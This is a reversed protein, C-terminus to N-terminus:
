KDLYIARIDSNNISCGHEKCYAEEGTFVEVNVEGCVYDFMNSDHEDMVHCAVYYTHNYLYCALKSDDFSNYIISMKADCAPDRLAIQFVYAFDYADADSSSESVSSNWNDDYDDEDIMYNDEGFRDDAMAFIDDVTLNDVPEYDLRGCVAIHPIGTEEFYTDAVSQLEDRTVPKVDSELLVADFGFHDIIFNDIPISDIVRVAGNVNALFGEAFGDNVDQPELYLRLLAKSSRDRAEITILM